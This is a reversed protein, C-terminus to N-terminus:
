ISRKSRASDVLDYLPVVVAEFLPRYASDFPCNVFVSNDYGPPM